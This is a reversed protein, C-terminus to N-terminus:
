ELQKLWEPAQKKAIELLDDLEYLEPEIDQIKAGNRLSAEIINCIKQIKVMGSYAAGGAMKHVVKVLQESTLSGAKSIADQTPVVSEMFMELMERALDKKGSVHKLALEADRIQPYKESLFDDDTKDVHEREIKELSSSNELLKVLINEDIPKSIYENMGLNMLREREGPIALATVAVIPTSKNKGNKDERIKGLATIGDMVPMQIDMFILDYVNIRCLNVAQEGSTCSDVGTVREALLTSILKLNAPNDDVALVKKNLKAIVQENESVPEESSNKIKDFCSLLREDAIPKIIVDSVGMQKISNNFESDHSNSCVIVPVDVSVAEVKAKVEELDEHNHVGILVAFLNDVSISKVADVSAMVYVNMDWDRMMQSYTDRAWECDDILLINLGKLGAISPNRENPLTAPQLPITTTFVSGKNIQSRVSLGGGMMTVIKQTIVLGLGTGGFTRSISNNAQIFPKFIRQQQSPSIGIGTDRVIIEIKVENANNNVAPQKILLMTVNVSGEETFKVANSVLNTLVQQLRLPDGVLLDPIAYDIKASLDIDKEHAIPAIIMLVENVTDRISFPIKELTLKGAELKSFDLINNIIGLLNKASREITSLYEHQTATLKSKFLQKSFGIIGNLPTRLEHSMNALFETKVRAAEQARKKALDLEVNQIEMQELTERLDATSQDISQQMENHYEAISRAMGNIGSRLRELEGHMGGTIRTDLQGEKICAIARIMRKIPEVVEKILNFAFILALIMGILIVFVALVADKYLLMLAKSKNLKMSVYGVIRTPSDTTEIKSYGPIIRAVDFNDIVESFIPTRLIISDNHFHVSTIPSLKNDFPQKLESFDHVYRSTVFLNSALDFVAITDILGSNNRHAYNVIKRVTDLREEGLPGEIALTLPEIINTGKEVLNQEVLNYRNFIYFGSFFLGIVLVPLLNYVIVRSRLGYRKFAM